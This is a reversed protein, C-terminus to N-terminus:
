MRGGYKTFIIVDYTINIDQVLGNQGYQVTLEDSAEFDTATCM